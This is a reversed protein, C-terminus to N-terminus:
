RSPSAGATTVLVGTLVLAAGAWALPALAEGWVAYALAAAVVPELTAVTVARTAELRRLGAGYVQLAVWTPVVAVFLIWGWTSASKPAFHVAPLLLLAGLPLAYMFLTAPEYRTFYRRGFLYYSAYALGSALGWLIGSPGARLGAGASGGLAVLAVGTLTLALALMTRRTLPEHLWLASALAVWAPATYLLIAALAAGGDRVALLYALYFLSVGAVAFAAVAGRDRREVRVHGGRWAQMAFLAGAIGARWMSLELPSVGAALIGRSAVGLSGWLTAALIILLYGSRAGPRM